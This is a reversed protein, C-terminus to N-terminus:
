RFPSLATMARVLRRARRAMRHEARQQCAADPAVLAPQTTQAAADLATDPEALQQALTVDAIHGHQFLLDTFIRM